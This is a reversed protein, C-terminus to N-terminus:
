LSDIPKSLSVAGRIQGLSYGTGSDNPYFSKLAESVEPAIETGHCKLCLQEVPQAKMFRFEGNVVSSVALKDTGDNNAQREALQHLMETEWADPKAAPNRPQLSVRHVTWGTSESLSAAIAPAQQSCVEITAVPGSAEMNQKLIPKLTGAFQKVIGVAEETLEKESPESYSCSVALLALTSLAIKQRTM